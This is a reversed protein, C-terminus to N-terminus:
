LFDDFAETPSGSLSILGTNGFVESFALVNGLDIAKPFRSQEVLEEVKQILKSEQLEEIAKIGFPDLPLAIHFERGDNKDVQHADYGAKGKKPMDM